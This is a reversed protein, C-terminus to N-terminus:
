EFGEERLQAIILAGADQVLGTTQLMTPVFFGTM